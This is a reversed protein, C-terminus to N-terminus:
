LAETISPQRETVNIVVVRRGSAEARATAEEEADSILADNAFIIFPCRKARLAPRELREIRKKINV